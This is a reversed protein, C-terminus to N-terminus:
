KLLLPKTKAESHEIERWTRKARLNDVEIKAAEIFRERM